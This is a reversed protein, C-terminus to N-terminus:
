FESVFDESHLIDDTTVWRRVTEDWQFPCEPISELIDFLEGPTKARECSRVFVLPHINQYKNRFSKILEQNM